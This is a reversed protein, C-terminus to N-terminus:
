AEFGNKSQPEGYNQQSLAERRKAQQGDNEDNQSYRKQATESSTWCNSVFEMHVGIGNASLFHIRLVSRRLHKFSMLEEEAAPLAAILKIM